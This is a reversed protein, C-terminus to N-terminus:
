PQGPSQVEVRNVPEPPTESLPQDDKREAGVSGTRCERGSAEGAAARLRGVADVLIAVLEAFRTDPDGFIVPGAEAALPHTAAGVREARRSLSYRDDGAQAVAQEEICFGITFSYLLQYARVVDAVTFGQRALSALGAEQGRLVAPDTLYTGSVMTAGDRHSLLARRTITAFATMGQDWPLDPDLEALAAAIQRWIETAMEDLLDQKSRVHWYLAPPQVGLKGAVIRVTLGDLGTEDLAELGAAVIAAKTL